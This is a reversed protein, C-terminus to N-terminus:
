GGTLFSDCLLPDSNSVPDCQHCIFTQPSSFRKTSSGIVTLLFLLNEFHPVVVVVVFVESM